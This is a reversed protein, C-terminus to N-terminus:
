PNIPMLLEGHVVLYDEGVRAAEIRCDDDGPELFAAGLFDNGDAAIHALLAVPLAEFLLSEGCSCGLENDHVELLFEDGIVEPGQDLRAAGVFLAVEQAGRCGTGEECLAQGLDGDRFMGVGVGMAARSLAVVLDAEFDPDLGEGGFEGDDGGPAGPVYGAAVLLDGIELLPAYGQRRFFGIGVATVVVEPVHAM